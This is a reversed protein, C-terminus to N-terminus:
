ARPFTTRDSHGAPRTRRSTNQESLKSTDTQIIESGKLVRGHCSWAQVGKAGREYRTRIENTGQEYVYSSSVFLIRVLYSCLVARTSSQSPTDVKWLPLFWSPIVLTIAQLQYLYDLLKQSKSSKIMFGSPIGPYPFM